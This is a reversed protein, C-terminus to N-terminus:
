IIQKGDWWYAHITKALCKSNTLIVDAQCKRGDRLQGNGIFSGLRAMM